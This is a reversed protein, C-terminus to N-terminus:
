SPTIVNEKNSNHRSLSSLGALAASEAETLSGSRSRSAPMPLFVGYPVNEVRRRPSPPVTVDFAPYDECDMNPAVRPITEMGVSLGVHQSDGADEEGCEKHRKTRERVLKPDSERKKGKMVLPSMIDTHELKPEEKPETKSSPEKWEGNPTLHNKRWGSYDNVCLMELKFGDEDLGVLPHEKVMIKYILSKASASIKTWTQPALKRQVLEAWARRLSARIGKLQDATIPNGNAQELWPAKGHDMSQAEPLIAFSEYDSQVRFRLGPYEEKSLRVHESRSAQLGVNIDTLSFSLPDTDELLKLVAILSQFAARITDREAM